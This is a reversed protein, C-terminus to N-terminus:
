IRDSYQLSKIYEEIYELNISGDKKAPLKIVMNMIRKSGLKRGYTYKYKEKEIVTKIFLASYKTMPFKPTLVRVDDPSACYPKPHFFASGVSGNRAITLTNGEQSPNSDVRATVGNNDASSAVYITDGKNSCQLNNDKSVTINFLDSISFEKWDDIDLVIDSKEICTTIPLYHLSKIYKEMFDYDPFDNRGPPLKICLELSDGLRIQRGYSWKFREQNIITTIFLGIYKNMDFKPLLVTVDPSACFPKSQYFTTAGVKGITLCNGQFSPELDTLKMIGNNTNSASVLPVDGFSYKSEDYYKGPKMDFFDILKYEVWNETNLKMFM